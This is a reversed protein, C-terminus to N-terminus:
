LSLRRTIIMGETIHKMHGGDELAREGGLGGDERRKM